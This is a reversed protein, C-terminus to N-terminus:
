WGGGVCMCQAFSGTSLCTQESETGDDCTCARTDGIDVLDEGDACGDVVEPVDRHSPEDSPDDDEDCGAAAIFLAVVGIRVWGAM